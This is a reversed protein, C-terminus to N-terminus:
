EKVELRIKLGPRRIVQDLPIAGFEGVLIARLKQENTLSRVAEISSTAVM